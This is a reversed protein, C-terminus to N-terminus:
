KFREEQTEAKVLSAKEIQFLNENRLITKDSRIKMVRVISRRLSNNSKILKTMINSIIEVMNQIKIM